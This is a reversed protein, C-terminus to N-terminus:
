RTKKSPLIRDIRIARHGTTYLIKLNEGVVMLDFTAKDIEVRVHGVSIYCTNRRNIEKSELKGEATLYPPFADKLTWLWHNTWRRIKGCYALVDM